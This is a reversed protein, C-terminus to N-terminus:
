APPPPLKVPPAQVRQPNQPGGPGGPGAPPMPYPSPYGPPPYPMGYPPMGPYGPPMGYPMQPYPMGYPPMAPVPQQPPAAAPAAPAAAVPQPAPQPPVPLEYATDSSAIVATDGIVEGAPAAAPPSQSADRLSMEFELSGIRVHDGDQLTTEGHLADENVFTGNRSGLDRLRVAYDDLYFVCHHRSIADSAPRLHCDQERGILFRGRPLPIEKGQHKGGLVKLRADLM